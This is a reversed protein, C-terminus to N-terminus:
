ARPMVEAPAHEKNPKFVALTLVALPFYASTLRLLGFYASTLVRLVGDRVGNVNYLSECRVRAASVGMKELNKRKSESVPLRM